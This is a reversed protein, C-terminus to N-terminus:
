NTLAVFYEFAWDSPTSADAGVQFDNFNAGLFARRAIEGLSEGAGTFNEAKYSNVFTEVEEFLNVGNVM